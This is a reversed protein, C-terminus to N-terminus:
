CWWDLGIHNGMIYKIKALWSIGQPSDYSGKILRKVDCTQSDYNTTYQVHEVM